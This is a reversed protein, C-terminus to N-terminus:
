LTQQKTTRVSVRQENHAQKLAIINNSESTAGVVINNGNTNINGSNQNQHQM